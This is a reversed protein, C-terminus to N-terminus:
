QDILTRLAQMCVRYSHSKETQNLCWYRSDGVYNSEGVQPSSPSLKTEATSVMYVCIDLLYVQNIHYAQSNVNNDGDRTFTWSIVRPISQEHAIDPWHGSVLNFCWGLLVSHLHLSSQNFLSIQEKIWIKHFCELCRLWRRAMIQHKAVLRATWDQVQVQRSLELSTAFRVQYQM